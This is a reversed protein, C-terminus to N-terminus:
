APMRTAIKACWTIPTSPASSGLSTSCYGGIRRRLGSRSRERRGSAGAGGQPGEAVGARDAPGGRDERLRGERNGKWSAHGQAVVVLLTSSAIAQADTIEKRFVQAGMDGEDALSILTVIVDASVASWTAAISARIAGANHCRWAEEALARM